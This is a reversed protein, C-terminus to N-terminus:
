FADGSWGYGLDELVIAVIYTIIDFAEDHPMSGFNVCEDWFRQTWEGNEFIFVSGFQFFHEVMKFRDAKDGPLYPTNEIKIGRTRKELTQRLSIGSSKPEIHLTSRTDGNKQVFRFVNKVLDPFDWRGFKYDKIFISDGVVSYAAIASPDNGEKTEQATDTVFNTPQKFVLKPVQGINIRNLYEAKFTKGGRPAPRQQYLKEFTVPVLLRREEMRAQSHMAPFLAEGVKRPDRPHHILEKLAELELVVWKGGEEVRGDRKLIRGALDDHHRRTITFGVRSDNHLRAEVEDTFWNYISDRYTRSEAEKVNKIVDDMLILKGPNGAIGGGVGTAMFTGKKGVVEFERSNKVYSSKSDTVVNKANLKTEPFINAYFESEIIRQIKRNYKQAQPMDYMTLMARENPNLGFAYPVLGEVMMTTKQNQPPMFCMFFPYEGEVFKQLYDCVLEHHWNWVYHPEGCTAKMFEYYRARCASYYLENFNENVLQQINLGKFM